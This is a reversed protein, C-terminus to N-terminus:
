LVVVPRLCKTLVLSFVSFHISCYHLSIWESKLDFCCILCFTDVIGHSLM